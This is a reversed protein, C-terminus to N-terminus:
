EDQYLVHIYWSNDMKVASMSTRRTSQGRVIRTWGMIQGHQGATIYRMDLCPHGDTTRVLLADKVRFEQAEGEWISVHKGDTSKKM